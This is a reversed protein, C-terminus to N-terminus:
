GHWPSRGTPLHTGLGSLPTPSPSRKSSAGKSASVVQGTYEALDRRVRQVRALEPCWCDYLLQALEASTLRRAGLGCRALGRGAEECRTTLQRRVPEVDPVDAKRGLPWPRGRGAVASGDQAPVVLYFRRELLTRSRALRRLFLAHDQALAALAEPLKLASKELDALYGELDISVSRVLIQVPFSLANLFADFGAVTSEQDAEGQLAFNVSGVELVARYQGDPLCLAGDEISDLGVRAAQVSALSGM